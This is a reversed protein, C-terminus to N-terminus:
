GKAVQDHPWREGGWSGGPINPKDENWAGQVFVKTVTYGAKKLAERVVVEADQEYEPEALKRWDLNISIKM